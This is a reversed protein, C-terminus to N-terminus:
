VFSWTGMARAFITQRRIRLAIRKRSWPQSSMAIEPTSQRQFCRPLHTSPLIRQTGHCSSLSGPACHAFSAMAMRMSTDMIIQLRWLCQDAYRRSRRKQIEGHIAGMTPTSRFTEAQTTAFNGYRLRIASSCCNESPYDVPKLSALDPFRHETAEGSGTWLEGNAALNCAEFTPYAAPNRELRFQDHVGVRFREVKAGAKERAKLFNRYNTQFDLTAPAPYTYDPWARDVFRRIPVIAAVDSVGTQIYGDLNKEAHPPIDGLHDAHLHTLMFADITELGAARLRRSVYRGIWEGPRREASPRIPSLYRNDGYLAGADVMMTTGDPLILFTSNGRNTAIHHIEMFGPTWPALVGPADQESALAFLPSAAAPTLALSPLSHTIFARRNM